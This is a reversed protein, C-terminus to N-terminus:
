NALFVFLLGILALIWGVEPAFKPTALSKKTPSPTATAATPTTTTIPTTVGAPLELTAQPDFKKMSISTASLQNAATLYIRGSADVYMYAAQLFSIGLIISTAEEGGLTVDCTGPPKTFRAAIPIDLQEQGSAGQFSIVLSDNNCGPHISKPLIIDDPYGLPAFNADYTVNGVLVSIDLSGDVLFGDDDASEAILHWSTSAIRNSDYWGGLVLSRLIM